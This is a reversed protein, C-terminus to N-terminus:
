AQEKEEKKSKELLIERVRNRGSKETGAWVTGM